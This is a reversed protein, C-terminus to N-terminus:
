RVTRSRLALMVLRVAIGLLVCYGVNRFEIAKVSFLLSAIAALAFGATVIGGPVRFPAPGAGARVRLRIVAACTAAYTVLRALTSMTVAGLFSGWLSLALAAASTALIAVHPTRWRAHTHAFVAPLEGQEGLSSLMRPTALTIGHLTGTMSVLAGVVLLAGGFAGLFREAAEAVPRTSTALEPHTGICVVQVLLYLPAVVALAAMAAFPLNRKPEVIEGAPIVASEFGTFAFVLLLVAEVLKGTEPVVAFDFRAPELHWLGIAVFVLLPVLKAVTFVDGVLAARRVGVLNFGTLTATLAVIVATRAVGEQAAPWFHVLYDAFLNALAAFATVRSLWVLWSVSSGVWPGFAERAYLGPGGSKDFRSGVEAFCLVILLVVAACLLYAVLSHAGILAQVKAPLGFIGAGVIGNLFLAALDYRGIGRVTAPSSTM